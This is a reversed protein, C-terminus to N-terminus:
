KPQVKASAKAAVKRYGTPIQFLAPSAPQGEQINTFQGSTGDPLKSKIPFHLKQDIWVTVHDSDNTVDWVDCKRGDLIDIGTKTCKWDPHGVCPDSIVFNPAAIRGDLTQSKSDILSESYTHFQPMIAVSSNKDYDFILVASVKSVLDYMDMRLKPPAFYISGTMLKDNKPSTLTFDASFTKPKADQAAAIITALVFFVCMSFSKLVKATV